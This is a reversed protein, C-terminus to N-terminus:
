GYELDAKYIIQKKFVGKGWIITNTCNKILNLKVACKLARHHLCIAKGSSPIRYCLPYFGTAPLRIALCRRIWSHQLEDCEPVLAQDWGHLLWRKALRMALQVVPASRHKHEWRHLKRVTMNLLESPLHTRMLSWFGLQKYDNVMVKKRFNCVNRAYSNFTM